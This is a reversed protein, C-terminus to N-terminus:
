LLGRKRRKMTKHPKIQTLTATKVHSTRRNRGAGLLGSAFEMTGRREWQYEEDLTDPHILTSLRKKKLRPHHQFAFERHDYDRRQQKNKKDEEQQQYHQRQSEQHFLDIARDNSGM